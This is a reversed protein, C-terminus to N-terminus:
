VGIQEGWLLWEQVKQITVDAFTGVKDPTGRFRVRKMEKSNGSCWGKDYADVLVCVTKGFYYQNKKLVTEEMLKQLTQWRRKKEEKSISDEFAKAAVTGSRESYQATYSIDFDCVKYLDVTDQFQAKTEGPFGVIIDTGIAIDPKKTRIKKICDIYFDRDHRRNMRKLVDNNGSQVPLHLFNVQKSLVSLADIVEDDMYIPHPATWHFREIGDIQQIEWLLRAFDNKVYPNGLSFYEPDPAVYHNVIQGLL